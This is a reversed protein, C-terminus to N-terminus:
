IGLNVNNHTQLHKLIILTRKAITVEKPMKRIRDQYLNEVNKCMLAVDDENQNYAYCNQFISEFDQFSSVDSPMKAMKSLIFRELDKAMTYVGYHPPNYTYCNNFMTM